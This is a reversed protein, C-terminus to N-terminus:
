YGQNINNLTQGQRISLSSQIKDGDFVNSVHFSMGQLAAIIASTDSGGGSTAQRIGPAALIDDGPAMSFSGYPGSIVTGDGGAPIFLDKAPTTGSGISMIGDGFAGLASMVGKLPVIIKMLESNEMPGTESQLGTIKEAEKLSAKKNKMLESTYDGRKQSQQINSTAQAKELSTQKSEIEAVAELKANTVKLDAVNTNFLEKSVNSMAQQGTVMKVLSEESVGMLAAIEKRAFLDEKIREGYKDALQVSINTLANIDNALVAERTAQAISVEREGNADKITTTLEEGMVITASLEATISEEINLSGEAATAVEDLTIGLQKAKLAAISLGEVNKGYQASTKASLNAFSEIIDTAAGTYYGKVNEAVNAVDNNVRDLNDALQETDKSKGGISAQYRVYNEYAEKSVKLQDGIIGNQKVLQNALKENKTLYKTQGAFVNTLQGAYEKATQTNQKQKVALQELAVGLQSAGRTNLNFSSQITLNSAELTGLTQVLKQAQGNLTNFVDDQAIQKSGQVYTNVFGTFANGLTTLMNGDPPTQGHRPQKKLQNVLYINFNDIM